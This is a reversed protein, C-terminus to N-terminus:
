IYDWLEARVRARPPLQAVSRFPRAGRLRARRIREAEDREFALRVLEADERRREEDERRLNALLRYTTRRPLGKDAMQKVVRAAPYAKRLQRVEDILHEPTKKGRM